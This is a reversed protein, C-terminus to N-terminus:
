RKAQAGPTEDRNLFAGVLGDQHDELWRAMAVEEQLIQGCVAAIDPAGAREAAIVLARYTAIESGGLAEICQRLSASQGQTEQVHQSIRAALQPYNEIRSAMAKMMTEAEQEMAYADQLWKLLRESRATNQDAM